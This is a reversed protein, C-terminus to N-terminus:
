AAHSLEARARVWGGVRALAIIWLGLLGMATWDGTAIASHLYRPRMGGLGETLAHASLISYGLIAGAILSREPKLAGLGVAMLSMVALVVTVEDTHWEFFLAIAVAATVATWWM